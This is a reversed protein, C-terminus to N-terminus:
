RHSAFSWAPDAGEAAARVANQVVPPLGSGQAYALRSACGEQAVLQRSASGQVHEGLPPPEGSIRVLSYM